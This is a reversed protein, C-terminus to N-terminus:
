SLPKRMFVVHFDRVPRRAYEAYGLRSYLEQNETMGEHTYLYISDHGDARAEEEALAILARGLGRGQMAPDVAVNEIAFGEDSPGRVVVGVIREEEVAVEVRWAAIVERYDDTMPRPRM